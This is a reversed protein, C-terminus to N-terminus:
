GHGHGLTAEIETHITRTVPTPIGLSEGLRLLTEGFLDGENRDGRTEIDRQYSTRTEPPFAAAKAVADEVVSAPLAISKARAIAVIESMIERATQVAHHDVLVGGISQGTHATVLGFAAIFVYKTWIACRVDEQWQFSVGVEDFLRVLPAPDFDTRDPDPGCVIVGDAGKQAVVGPREVHTGVYVCAPLLIGSPLNRRIRECVDVGNLLPIVITDRAIRERLVVVLEDLDYSKVCILCLDPPRVDALDDTALAPTCVIGQERSTNLILGHRRIQELHAGRAIFFAERKPAPDRSFARAISGGFYGGVGGVGCVCVRRIENKGFSM